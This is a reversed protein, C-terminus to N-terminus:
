QKWQMVARGNYEEVTTVAEGASKWQMTARGNYEEVTTVAEV